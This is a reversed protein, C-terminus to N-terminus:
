SKLDEASEVSMRIEFGQGPTEPIPKVSLSEVKALIPGLRCAVALADLQEHLGQAEMLVSGDPENRVWGSLGLEDAKNKVFNRYGVGQVRGSM